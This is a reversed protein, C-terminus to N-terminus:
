QGTCQSDYIPGTLVLSASTAMGAKDQLSGFIVETSSRSTSWIVSRDDMRSCLFASRYDQVTM